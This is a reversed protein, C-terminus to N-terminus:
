LFLVDAVICSCKRIEKKVELANFGLSRDQVGGDDLPLLEDVQNTAFDPQLVNVNRMPGSQASDPVDWRVEDVLVPLAAADWGLLLSLSSFFSLSLHCFGLDIHHTQKLLCM